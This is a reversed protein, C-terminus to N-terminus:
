EDCLSAIMLRDEFCVHDEISHVGQGGETDDGAEFAAAWPIHDLDHIWTDGDEVDWLQAASSGKGIEQIKPSTARTAGELADREQPVV